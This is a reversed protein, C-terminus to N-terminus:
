SAIERVMYVCRSVIADCPLCFSFGLVGWCPLVANYVCECVVGLASSTLGWELVQMICGRIVLGCRGWGKRGGEWERGKPFFLPPLSGPVIVMGGERGNWMVFTTHRQSALTRVHHVLSWATDRSSLRLSKYQLSSTKPHFNTYFMNMETAKRKKEMKLDTPSPRPTLRRGAGRGAPPAGRIDRGSRLQCM